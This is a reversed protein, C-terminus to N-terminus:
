LSDKKLSNKMDKKIIYAQNENIKKFIPTKYTHIDPFKFNKKIM